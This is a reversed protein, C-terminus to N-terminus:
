TYGLIYSLIYSLFLVIITGPFNGADTSYSLYPRMSCIAHAGM